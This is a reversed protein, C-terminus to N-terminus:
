GREVTIETYKGWQVTRRRGNQSEVTVEIKSSPINMGQRVISIIKGTSVKDDPKMEQAQVKIREM